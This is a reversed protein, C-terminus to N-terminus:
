YLLMESKITNFDIYTEAYALNIFIRVYVYTHMHIYLTSIKDLISAPKYFIDLITSFQCIIKNSNTLM